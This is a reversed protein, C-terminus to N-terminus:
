SLLLAHKKGFDEKRCNQNELSGFFCKELNANFAASSGSPGPAGGLASRCPSHKAGHNLWWWWVLLGVESMLRLAQSM